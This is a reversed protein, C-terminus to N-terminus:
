ALPEMLKIGPLHKRVMDVLQRRTFPKLLFDTAGAAMFEEQEQLFTEGSSVIAPIHRTADGAARLALLFNKGDMVPMKGDTIILDPTIKKLLELAEMGNEAFFPTPGLSKIAAGFAAQNLKDDELVLIIYDQYMEKEPEPYVKEQMRFGAKLPLALLFSTTAGTNTASITGNIKEVLQKTIALGLGTSEAMHEKSAHSVFPLFIDQLQEPNLSSDNQTEIHIHDGAKSVNFQVDSNKVAYKVANSALNNIIKSLITSDSLIYEPLRADYHLQISINRSSTIPRLMQICENICERLSFSENKVENFQNEEIKALDLQNNIIERILLSAVQLHETEKRIAAVLDRDAPRVVKELKAVHENLGEAIGMISTLPTRIEHNTERLYKTKAESAKKQEAMMTRVQKIYFYLMIGNLATGTLVVILRIALMSSKSFTIPTFLHYSYNVELLVVMLGVYAWFLNRLKRSTILLDSAGMLFAALLHIESVPGLVIGYFVLAADLVVFFILIVNDVGIRHHLFPLCFFLVGVFLELYFAPAFDILYFVAMGLTLSLVALLLCLTNFFSVPKDSYAAIKM